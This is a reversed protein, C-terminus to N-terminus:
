QNGKLTRDAEADEADEADVEEVEVEVRSDAVNSSGSFNRLTITKQM